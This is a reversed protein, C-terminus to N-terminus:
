NQHRNELDVLYKKGNTKVFIQFDRENNLKELEEQTYDRYNTEFQLSYIYGKPLTNNITLPTVSSVLAENFKSDGKVEFEFSSLDKPSIRETSYLLIQYNVGKLPKDIAPDNFSLIRSDISKLFLHSKEIKKHNKGKTATHVLKNEQQYSNQNIPQSFGLTLFSGIIIISFLPIKKM